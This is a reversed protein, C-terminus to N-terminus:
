LKSAAAEDLMWVLRGDVPQIRQAPLRLPDLDGHLVEQLRDAKQAGSVM